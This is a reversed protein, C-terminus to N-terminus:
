GILRTPLTYLLHKHLSVQRTDIGKTTLSCSILCLNTHNKPQSGQLLHQAWCSTLTENENLWHLILRAQHQPIHGFYSDERLHASSLNWKIRTVLSNIQLFEWSHLIDLWLPTCNMIYILCNKLSRANLMLFNKTHCYTGQFHLYSRTERLHRHESPVTHEVKHIEFRLKWTSPLFHSSWISGPDCSIRNPIPALHTIWHSSKFVEALTM